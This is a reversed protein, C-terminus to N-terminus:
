VAIVSQDNIQSVFDQAIQNPAKKFEKSLKFCPFGFDGQINDPVMEIALIIEDLSLNIDSKQILEAFIKKYSNLM